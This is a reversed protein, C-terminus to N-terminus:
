FTIRSVIPIGAVVGLIGLIICAFVNASNRKATKRVMAIAGLIASGIGAISTAALALLCVYYILSPFTM